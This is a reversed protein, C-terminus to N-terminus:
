LVDNSNMIDAYRARLYQELVDTKLFSKNKQWKKMKPSKLVIRSGRLGIWFQELNVSTNIAIPVKHKRLFFLGFHKM